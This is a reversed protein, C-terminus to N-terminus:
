CDKTLNRLNSFNQLPTRSDDFPYQNYGNTVEGEIVKEHDCIEDWDYWTDCTGCYYKEFDSMFSPPVESNDVYNCSVNRCCLYILLCSIWQATTYSYFDQGKTRLGIYAWLLFFCLDTVRVSISYLHSSFFYLLIFLSVMCCAIGCFRSLLGAESMLASALVMSLFMVVVINLSRDKVYCDRRKVM